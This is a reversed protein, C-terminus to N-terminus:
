RLRSESECGRGISEMRMEISVGTPLESEYLVLIQTEQRRLLM